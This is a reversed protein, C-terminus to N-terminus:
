DEDLINSRAIRESKKPKLNFSSLILCYILIEAKRSQYKCRFRNFVRFSMSFPLGLYDLTNSCTVSM